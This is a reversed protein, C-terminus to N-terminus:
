QALINYEMSDGVEINLPFLPHGLNNYLPVNQLARDGSSWLSTTYLEVANPALLPSWTPKECLHSSRYVLTISEVDPLATSVYNQKQDSTLRISQHQHRRIVANYPMGTRQDESLLGPNNNLMQELLVFMQLGSYNSSAGGQKGSLNDTAPQPGVEREQPEQSVSPPESSGEKPSTVVVEVQETDKFRPCGMKLRQRRKHREEKAQLKAAMYEAKVRDICDNLYMYWKQMREVNGFYLVFRKGAWGLILSSRARRGRREHNYSVCLDLLCVTYKIGLPDQSTTNYILLVNSYLM